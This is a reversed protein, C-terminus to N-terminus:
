RCHRREENTYEPHLPHNGLTKVKAGADDLNDLNLAGLIQNIADFIEKVKKTESHLEKLQQKLDKRSNFNKIKEDLKMAKDCAKLLDNIIQECNSKYGCLQNHLKNIESTIENIQHEVDGLAFNIGHLRLIIDNKNEIAPNNLERECSIKNNYLRQKENQLETYEAKLEGLRNATSNVDAMKPTTM